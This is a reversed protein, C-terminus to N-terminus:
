PALIIFYLIYTIMYWENGRQTKWGLQIIYLEGYFRYILLCKRRAPLFLSHFVLPLTLFSGPTARTHTHTRSLPLSCQMRTITCSSLVNSRFVFSSFFTFLTPLFSIDAQKKKEKKKLCAFTVRGCLFVGCYWPLAHSITAVLLAPSPRIHVVFSM